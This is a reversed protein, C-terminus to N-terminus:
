GQILAMILRQAMAREPANFEENSKIRSLAFERLSGYEKIRAATAEKDARRLMKLALDIASQQEAPAQARRSEIRNIAEQYEKM